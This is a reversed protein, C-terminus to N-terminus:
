ELPALRLADGLMGIIGVLGHEGQELLSLRLHHGHLGQLSFLEGPAILVQQRLMRQFVDRM